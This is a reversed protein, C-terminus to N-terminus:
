KAGGGKYLTGFVHAQMAALPATFTALVAATGVGDFHSTAAFKISEITAYWTLAVTSYLVFARVSIFNRRDVWAAFRDLTM